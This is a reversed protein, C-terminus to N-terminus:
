ETHGAGSAEQTQVDEQVAAGAVAGEDWSIALSYRDFPKTTAQTEFKATSGPKITEGFGTAFGYKTDVTAGQKDVFTVTVMVGRVEEQGLNTVEGAVQSFGSEELIRSNIVKILSAQSSSASKVALLDNVKRDLTALRDVAETKKKAEELEQAQIEAQSLQRNILRVLKAKKFKHIAEVELTSEGAPVEIVATFSGDGNLLVEKGSVLVKSTVPVVKGSVFLKEGENVVDAEPKELRITPPKALVFSSGQWFLLGVIMAMAIKRWNKPQSEWKKWPINLNDLKLPSTFHALLELPRLPLSKTAAETNGAAFALRKEVTSLDNKELIRQISHRSIDPLEAALKDLSYLPYKKVLNLVLYGRDAQYDKVMDEDSM